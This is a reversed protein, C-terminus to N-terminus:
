HARERLRPASGSFLREVSFLLMVISAGVAARLARPGQGSLAFRWWVDGSFQVHRYLLVGIWAEVLFIAGAAFVWRPGMPERALSGPRPFERGALVLILLTIALFSALRLDFSRLLALLIGVGFLIRVLSYALHSRRELGWASLVLVAGVLSSLFHSAEIVTLPFLEGLWALRRDDAPIAGTVLLLAGALFTTLALARPALSSAGRLLEQIPQASARIRALARGALLGGAALLPLLYYVVRYLLLAALIHPVPVGAPRLLLLVAEFVGVGAPIPLFLAAFQAVVFATLFPFFPIPSLGVLVFYLAASACMWDALSVGLQALAIPLGPLALTRGAVRLPGRRFRALLLYAAVAVLLAVALLRGPLSFGASAAATPGLLLGLGGLTAFGLAYTIINLGAVAVAGSATLGQTRYLRYRIGGAAVAAAPATTGVVASVFSSVLMRRLPVVLGVFRFAVVDYGVLALYGLASMLAALLVRSIPTAHLAAVIDRYAYEHLVRDLVLLAMGFLLLNLAPALGPHPRSAKHVEVGSSEDTTAEC